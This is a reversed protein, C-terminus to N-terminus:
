LAKDVQQKNNCTDQGDTFFIITLEQMKEGEDDVFRDIWAFVKKFDTAGMTGLSNIYKKYSDLTKSENTDIFNDYLLTIVREFPNVDTTENGWLSEGIKLAGVKVAEFPRGSMSGSRDLCTILVKGKNDVKTTDNAGTFSIFDSEKM